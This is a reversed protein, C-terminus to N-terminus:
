TEPISKEDGELGDNIGPEEIDATGERSGVWDGTGSADARSSSNLMLVVSPTSNRPRDGMKPELDVSMRTIM